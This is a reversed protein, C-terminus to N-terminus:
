NELNEDGAFRIAQESHGQKYTSDTINGVSLTNQFQNYHDHTNDSFLKIIIMPEFIEVSIEGGTGRQCHRRSSM